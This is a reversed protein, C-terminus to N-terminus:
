TDATRGTRDPHSAIVSVRGLRVASYERCRRRRALSLGGKGASGGGPSGAARCAMRAAASTRRSRGPRDVYSRPCGIIQRIIAGFGSQSSTSTVLEVARAPLLPRPPSSVWAAPQVGGAWWPLCTMVSVLCPRVGSLWRSYRRRRRRPRGIGVRLVGSSSAASRDMRSTIFARLSARSASRRLCAPTVHAGEPQLTGAPTRPM